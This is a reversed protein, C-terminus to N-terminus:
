KASATGPSGVLGEPTFLKEDPKTNFKVEDITFVTRTGDAPTRM